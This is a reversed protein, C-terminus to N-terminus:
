KLVRDIVHIIGNEAKINSKSIKAENITLVDNEWAFKLSIGGLSTAKSMSKLNKETAWGTIIHNLLFSRLKSDSYGKGGIEKELVENSPAFITYTANDKLETDLGSNVIAQSFLSIEKTQELKVLLTQSLVESPAMLLIMIAALFSGKVNKM